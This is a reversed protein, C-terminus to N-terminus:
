LTEVFVANNPRTIYLGMFKVTTWRGFLIILYPRTAQLDLSNKPDCLNRTNVFSQMHFESVWRTFGFGLYLSQPDSVFNSRGLGNHTSIRWRLPHPVFFQGFAILLRGWADSLRQCDRTILQTPLTAFSDFSGREIFTQSFMPIRSSALVNKVGQGHQKGAKKNSNQHRNTPHM